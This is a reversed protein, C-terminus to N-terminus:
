SLEGAFHCMSRQQHTFILPKPLQQACIAEARICRPHFPCGSPLAAINPPSGEIAVLREAAQDLQPLARLLAQTYPNKSRYLIDDVQGVEMAYGGYMVMIQDCMSAIVGLDHSILIIATNFEKQLQKLLNLIEAQVTVDLATTPEDAILITPQCLLGMAIMVRQRMGGSFEHPYLNLRAKAEPIKVADLMDSAQQKAERYSMGRHRVLIESMQKSIKLYPNLSTMPDQFVMAIKDGRIKNLAAHSLGVLEMGQFQISGTIRAYTASLGLIALATQSKGSGSEGVIGLVQGAQLTFNLDPIITVWGRQSPAQINLHKVVLIPDIANM